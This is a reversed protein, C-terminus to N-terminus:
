ERQERTYPMRRVEGCLGCTRRIRGGAVRIRCNVGPVMPLGCGKCYIEGSPISTNTKQGIRRAIHVYRRAREDNGNRVADRALAFLRSIRVSAIDGAAKQSIRKRTMTHNTGMIFIINLNTSDSM